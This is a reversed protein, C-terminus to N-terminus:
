KRQDRGLTKVVLEGKKVFTNVVNVAEHLLGGGNGRLDLIVSKM